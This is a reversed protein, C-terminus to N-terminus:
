EYFNYVSGNIYLNLSPNFFSLGLIINLMVVMLIMKRRRVFLNLLKSVTSKLMLKLWYQRAVM